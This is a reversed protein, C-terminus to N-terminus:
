VTTRLNTMVSFAKLKAAELSKLEGFTRKNGEDRVTLYFEERDMCEIEWDAWRWLNGDIQIWTMPVETSM